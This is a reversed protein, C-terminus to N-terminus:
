ISSTQTITIHFVIIFPHFTDCYFLNEPPLRSFEKRLVSATFLKQIEETTLGIVAYMVLEDSCTDRLMQDRQRQSYKRLVYEVGREEIREFMVITFEIYLESKKV